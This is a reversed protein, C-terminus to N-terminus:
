MGTEMTALNDMYEEYSKDIATRFSENTNRNRSVKSARRLTNSPLNPNYNVDKEKRVEHMATQLSELSSSKKMGLWQGYQHPMGTTTNKNLGNLNNYNNFANNTQNHHYNISQQQNIPSILYNQHHSFQSNVLKSGNFQSSNFHQQQDIPFNSRIGTSGFSYDDNTTKPLQSTQKSSHYPCSNKSYIQQDCCCNSQFKTPLRKSQRQEDSFNNNRATNKVLTNQNLNPVKNQTQFQQQTSTQHSNSNEIQQQQQQLKRQKARKLTDTNKADLQAYRKESMSQRGFGDRQFNFGAQEDNLSLQNTVNSKIRHHM